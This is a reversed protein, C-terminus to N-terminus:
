ILIDNMSYVGTKGQMFAAAVLAGSAFGARSFAEHRISLKDTDSVYSVTHTGTVKGERISFVPLQNSQGAQNLVWENLGPHEQLIGEALSIATGSPADLKHTHHIETIGAQYDPYKALLRALMTNMKFLIHVGLSFNSAYLFGGNMEEAQRIVHDWQDLWGTTGSVVPVGAQFCSSFHSLASDPTSFDIAVDAAQLDQNGTTQKLAPDAIFVIEHGKERALEGILQGM